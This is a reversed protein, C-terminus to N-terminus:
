AVQSRAAAVTVFASQAGIFAGTKAFCTVVRHGFHRVVIHLVWVQMIGNMSLVSVGRCPQTASDFRKLAPQLGLRSWLLKLSHYMNWPHM